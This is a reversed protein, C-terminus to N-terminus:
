NDTSDSSLAYKTEQYELLTDIRQRLLRIDQQCRIREREMGEVHLPAPSRSLDNMRFRLESSRDLLVSIEKLEPKVELMEERALYESPETLGANLLKTYREELSDISRHSIWVYSVLLLVLSSTTAIISKLNM